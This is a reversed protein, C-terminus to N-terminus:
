KFKYKFYFDIFGVMGDDESIRDLDKDYFELYAIKCEKDNFAIMAFDKPLETKEPTCVEFHWNNIDFDGHVGYQSKELFTIEQQLKEVQKAYETDSYTAVLTTADSAFILMNQHYLQFYVDEYEGINTTNFYDATKDFRSNLFTMGVLKYRGFCVFGIYAFFLVLTVVVITGILKSKKM